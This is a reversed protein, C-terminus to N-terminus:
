SEKTPVFVRWKKSAENAASPRFQYNSGTHPNLCYFGKARGIKIAFVSWNAQMTSDDRVKVGKACLAMAARFTMYQPKLM